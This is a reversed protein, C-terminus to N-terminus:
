PTSAEDAPVDDAPPITPLAMHNLHFRSPCGSGESKSRKCKFCRASRPHKNTGSSRSPRGEQSRALARSDVELQDFTRVVQRLHHFDSGVDGMCPQRVKISVVPDLGVIYAQCMAQQSMYPLSLCHEAFKRDYEEFKGVSHRLKSLSIAAELAANPQLYEMDFAFFFEDLSAVRSMVNDFWVAAADTFRSSAWYLVDEDGWGSSALGRCVRELRTRFFRVQFPTGSGAFGDLKSAMDKLFVPFICPRADGQRSVSEQANVQRDAVQARLDSIQQRLEDLVNASIPSYATSVVATDAVNDADRDCRDAVSADAACGIRASRRPLSM